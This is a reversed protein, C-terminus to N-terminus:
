YDPPLRRVAFRALVGTHTLQREEASVYKHTHTQCIKCRLLVHGRSLREPRQLTCRQYHALLPSTEVRM